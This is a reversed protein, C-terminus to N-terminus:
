YGMESLIIKKINCNNKNKNNNIIIFSIGLIQASNLDLLNGALNLNNVNSDDKIFNSHSKFDKSEFDNYSLNLVNLTLKNNLTINFLSNLNNEILHNHSLYLQKLNKYFAILNVLHFDGDSNISNNNLILVLINKNKKIKESHFKIKENNLRNSELYLIKM